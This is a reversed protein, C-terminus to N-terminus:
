VAFFKSHRAAATGEFVRCQEVCEGALLSTMVEVWSLPFILLGAGRAIPVCTCRKWHPATQVSCRPMNSPRPLSKAWHSEVLM